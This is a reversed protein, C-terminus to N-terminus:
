EYSVLLKDIIKSFSCILLAGRFLSPHPIDVILRPQRKVLAYYLEYLRKETKAEPEFALEYAEWALDSDSYSSFDEESPEVILSNTLLVQKKLNAIQSKFLSM